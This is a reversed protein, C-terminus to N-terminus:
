GNHVGNLRTGFERAMYPLMGKMFDDTSTFQRDAVNTLVLRDKKALKEQDEHVVCSTFLIDNRQCELLTIATLRAKNSNNVGFLFLERGPVSLKFDVELEQRDSIPVYQPMPDYVSLEGFVFNRVEDLFDSQQIERKYYRMSAIKSLTQALQMVAAYVEHKEADMFLAGDEIEVGNAMVIQNLIGRRSDTDVEFTYSLRMLTKGLDTIRVKGDHPYREDIFVEIIDGDEHLMPVYVQILGPRRLRVNIGFKAQERLSQAYDFTMKKEQLYIM